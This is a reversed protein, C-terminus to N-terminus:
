AVGGRTRGCAHGCCWFARVRDLGAYVGGLLLRRLGILVGVRQRVCSRGLRGSLPARSRRERDASPMCAVEECPDSIKRM